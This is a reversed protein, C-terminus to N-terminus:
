EGGFAASLDPARDPGQMGESSLMGTPQPAWWYTSGWQQEARNRVRDLYGPSLFEQMDNLVAQDIALKAYWINVAPMHGRAWRFAEAGAHTDKGEAAQRLNELFVDYTLEFASGVVPGAIGGLAASAGSQGQRGIGSLLMDGLFGAGGGQSFAASWFKALRAPDDGEQGTMDRPDRGAALEKLQIALAGFLTMGVALSAGYQLRSAPSMDGHLARDWHRSMVAIPYSKFLLLSRWLEGKGTGRQLGGAQLTRTTLDPAVSAYESEDAITGLLRSVVRQKTFADVGPVDLVSQPTLMDVGRWQEPTAQHLVAWEDATWGKTTLRARDGAELQEWPTHAIKAMGGMMTVSFARRVADTFANLLGAKTTANALRATWGQGLNGEGYQTMDSVISDSILGARHAYERTESGFARVLNVTGQWFPLRNYGLTAFYTPIDTVSSLLTQQLKGTVELNRLGQGIRAARQSESNNFAGTLTKFMDTTNMLLGVRDVGGGQMATDHMTRFLAAPNPGFTETLAINRAMWEIHGSLAGFVNGQGYKGLYSVYAEPTAFHIVRSQSGANALAGEGRYQGPEIKSWGDSTITRWAEELAEGLEADTMQRGNETVYKRRDVMQLVDTVWRTIGAERVRGADHPQPLYGYMLKRVDGGAENFRNRMNEISDLWARAAAKAGADGGDKGFVERVFALAKEPNEANSIWRVGRMVMSGSDQRTAYDIADLTKQLYERQVGKIYTNAQDLKRVIVKFGGKGAREVEPVHRMHAQVSLAARTEQLEAQHMLDKAAAKAGERLRGERPMQAWGAPNKAALRRMSERVREEIGRAEAQTIKRGIATEVANVCKIKM